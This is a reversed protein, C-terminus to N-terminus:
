ESSGVHNPVENTQMEFNLSIHEKSIKNWGMEVEDCIM